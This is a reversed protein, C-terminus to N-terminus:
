THEPITRMLEQGSNADWLKVTKDYSSTALQKGDPSFAVCTVPGTHGKFTRLERGSAAEWLKVTHDSSLCALLKSDPSFALGRAIRNNGTLTVCDQSNALDWIKVGDPSMSALRKGDHSFAVPASPGRLTFIEQGGALDWVKVTGAVGPMGPNGVGMGD